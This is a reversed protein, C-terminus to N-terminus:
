KGFLINTLGKIINTVAPNFKYKPESLTGSLKIVGFKGVKGMIATTVDQLTGSLPVLESLINVDLAGELSGNFGIKLPGSLEAVNGKLKLSDTYLSKNGVTFACSCESLDISGLDKAFLLKGVGQLLNLEWLKGEKVAFDGAGSLKDMQGSFGNLKVEGGFTGSINKGKSATDMKLKELKVGEAQMEIHYPLNASGLNFSASGDIAGGYFAARLSVIRAIGKEQLYEANVEPSNLGYLSFNDSSAKARVFCDGARSLPGSLVIDIDLKGKPRMGKIAPFQGSLAKDLDELNLNFAAVINAQPSAPDSNDIDGSISFRSDLYKGSAQSVQVKKGNVKFASVLSLDRSSVRIKVDPASFDSLEGSTQYEKGQYKFKVDSWSLGRQSFDIEAFINEVPVNNKFLKLGADSVSVKGQVMWGGKGDPYLKVFLGAKGLASNLQSFNFKDRAIASIFKLDLVTNINLVLTKFDKIGLNVEFPIGLIEAKLGQAVLSREDFAIKGYLDKLEGLFGLGSVDARRIDCTGDFSTKKSQTDYDAKGDLDLDLKVKIEEKALVIGSAKLSTELHLVNNELNLRSRGSVSGELLNLGSEKYYPEFEKPLLNNMSLGANLSRKAFNYEGSSYVSTLPNNGLEGRFNFKVSGPLSVWLSLKINNVEKRFQEALTDDQFVAKGSSVSIKYVFFNFDNKKANQGAPPSAPAPRSGFLRMLNFSGDKMRELFIYPEKLTISPIIISKKFLPWFFIICDAEKASVIVNEGERISLGRLILGKFINFELSELSVEKGTQQSVTSIILAKIKGPLYFKNLYFLGCLVVLVVVSAIIIFKKM